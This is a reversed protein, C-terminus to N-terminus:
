PLRSGGHLRLTPQRTSVQRCEWWCHRWLSVTALSLQESPSLAKQFCRMALSQTRALRPPAWLALVSFARAVQLLARLAFAPVVLWVSRAAFASAVQRLLLVWCVKQRPRGPATAPDAWRTSPRDKPRQREEAPCPRELMGASAQPPLM